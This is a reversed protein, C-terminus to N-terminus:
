HAAGFKIRLGAEGAQKSAPAGVWIVRCEVTDSNLEDLILEVYEGRKLHFTGGIRFGDQSHDLILCPIRHVQRGRKVILGARDKLAARKSHRREPIPRTPM